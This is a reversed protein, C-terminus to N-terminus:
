THPQSFVVFNTKFRLTIYVEHEMASNQLNLGFFVGNELNGEHFHQGPYSLRYLLESCAPSRIGISALNEAGTWVPGPVWGAELTKGPTFRGLRSTSCGGWGSRVSAGASKFPSTRKASLRFRTEARTGDCKLQGRCLTVM